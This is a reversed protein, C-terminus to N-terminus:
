WDVTSLLWTYPWWIYKLPEITPLAEVIQISMKGVEEKIKV